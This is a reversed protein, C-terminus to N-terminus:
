DKVEKQKSESLDQFYELEELQSALDRKEVNEQAKIIAEEDAEFM